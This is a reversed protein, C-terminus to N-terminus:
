NDIHEFGYKAQQRQCPKEYGAHFTIAETPFQQQQESGSTLAELLAQKAKADM